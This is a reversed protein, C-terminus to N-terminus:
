RPEPASKNEGDWKCVQTLIKFNVNQKVNFNNEVDSTCSLGTYPQQSCPLSGEPEM